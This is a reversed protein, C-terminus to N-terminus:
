PPGRQTTSIEGIFHNEVHVNRIDENCRDIPVHSLSLIM